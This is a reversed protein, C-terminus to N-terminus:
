EGHWALLAVPPSLRPFQYIITNIPPITASGDSGTPPKRHRHSAVGSQAGRCQLLAGLYGRSVRLEVEVSQEMSRCACPIRYGEGKGVLAIKM